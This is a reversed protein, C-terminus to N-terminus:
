IENKNKEKELNITLFKKFSPVNRAKLDTAKRNDIYIPLDDTFSSYCRYDFKKWIRKNIIIIKNNEEVDEDFTNVSSSDDSYMLERVKYVLIFPIWKISREIWIYKNICRKLAYHCDAVAQSDVGVYAFGQHGCLKFFLMIRENLLDNNKNNSKFSMSDAVLSFEGIYAVSNYPVNVKRELLDNTIPTYEIKLPINSYFVPKKEKKFLLYKRAYYRRLVKKYKKFCLYLQLTTKGSKVGGNVFGLTDLQIRKKHKFYYYALFGGVGMLLLIIVLEM